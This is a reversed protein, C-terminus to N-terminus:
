AGALPRIWVLNRRCRPQSCPLRSWTADSGNCAYGFRHAQLRACARARASERARATTAPLFRRVPASHSGSAVAAIPPCPRLPIPSLLVPSSSIRFLGRRRAAWPAASRCAPWGASRLDLRAAWSDGAFTSLVTGCTWNKLKQVTLSGRSNAVIPSIM